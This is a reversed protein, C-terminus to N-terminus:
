PFRIQVATKGVADGKLYICAAEGALSGGSFRVRGEARFGGFNCGTFIVQEGSEDVAGDLYWAETSQSPTCNIHDIFGPGTVALQAKGDANITLVADQAAQCSSDDPGFSTKQAVTKIVQPQLAEAPAATPAETPQTNPDVLIAEETEGPLAGPKSTISGTRCALAPVLVLALLFLRWRPTHM